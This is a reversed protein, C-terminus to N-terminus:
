DLQSPPVLGMISVMPPSVVTLVLVVALTSTPTSKSPNLM